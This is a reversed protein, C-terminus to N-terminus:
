YKLLNRYIRWSYIILGILLLNIIAMSEFCREENVIVVAWFTIISNGFMVFSIAEIMPEKIYTYATKWGIIAAWANLLDYVMWSLTTPENFDHNFLTYDFTVGDCIPEYINALVMYLIIEALVWKYSSYKKLMM